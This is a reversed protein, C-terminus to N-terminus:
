TNSYVSYFCSLLFLAHGACQFPSVTLNFFAWFIAQSFIHIKDMCMKRYYRYMFALLCLPILLVAM